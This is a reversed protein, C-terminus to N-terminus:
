IKRNHVHEALPGLSLNRTPSRYRTRTALKVENDRLTATYAMALMGLGRTCTCKAKDAQQNARQRPPTATFRTMRPTTTPFGASENSPIQAAANM